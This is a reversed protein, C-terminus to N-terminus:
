WLPWRLAEEPDTLYAVVFRRQDEPFRKHIHFYTSQGVVEADLIAEAFPDRGFTKIFHWIQM